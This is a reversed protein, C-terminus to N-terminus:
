PFALGYPLTAFVLLSYGIEPMGINRPRWPVGRRKALLPMAVARGTLLVWVLVHTWYNYGQVALAAMALTAIVHVTISGVFWPTSNRERIVTKM